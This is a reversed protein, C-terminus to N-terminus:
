VNVKSICVPINEYALIKHDICLVDPHTNDTCVLFNTNQLILDM